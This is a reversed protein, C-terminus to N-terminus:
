DEYPVQFEPQTKVFNNIKATLQNSGEQLAYPDSDDYGRTNTEADEPSPAQLTPAAPASPKKAVPAPAPTPKPKPAAQPAPKPAPTPAAKQKPEPQPDDPQPAEPEISTKLYEGLSILHKCMGPGLDGVGGQERPRPPRGNNANWASPGLAGADQKANNYAWRFRYDPCTCDVMCELEDARDKQSVDEKLFRVYGQWRQGTTSPNSKYSFTWAENGDMSTVNLSKGKVDRSRDVRAPDSVRYLDRFSMTETLVKRMLKSFSIM